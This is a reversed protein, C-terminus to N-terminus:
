VMKDIICFQIAKATIDSTLHGRLECSQRYKVLCVLM